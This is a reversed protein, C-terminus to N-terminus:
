QINDPHMSVRTQSDRILRGIFQLREQYEVWWKITNAPHSGLPIIDSSIRFLRIGNEINYLIIEELANLNSEIVKKLNTETANKIRILSLKTKDSGIHICAYGISM